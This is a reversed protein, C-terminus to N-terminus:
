HSTGNLEKLPAAESLVITNTQPATIVPSPKPTRRAARTQRAKAVAQAKAEASLHARPKVSELGFKKLLDDDNGVRERIAVAMREVLTTAAPVIADREKLRRKALAKAEEVAQYAEAFGGLTEVLDAKTWAKGGVHLVDKPSLVENTGEKLSVLCGLIRSGRQRSQAM